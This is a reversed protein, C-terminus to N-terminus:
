ISNLRMPGFEGKFAADYHMQYKAITNIEGTKNPLWQKEFYESFTIRGAKPDLWTGSRLKHEEDQAMKLAERKSTSKGATKPCGLPDRYRGRYMRTGRSKNQEVWAM